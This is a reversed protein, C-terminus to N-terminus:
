NVWILGVSFTLYSYDISDDTGVAHHYKVGLNVGFDYQVPILVGVAPYFGFHWNNNEFAFLGIESRQLSRVTGVGAGLYPRVGEEEGFHYCGTVMLPFTNVYNVRTGYIESGNLSTLGVVRDKFVQWGLFLGVSVNDNIFRRADLSVGRFSTEDTFDKLDSTPVGIDYTVSTAWYQAQVSTGVFLAVLITLVFKSFM